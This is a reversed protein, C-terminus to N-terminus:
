SPQSLILNFHVVSNGIEKIISPILYSANIRINNNVQKKMFQNKERLACNKAIRFSCVWGFTVASNRVLEPSNNHSKIKYLILVM